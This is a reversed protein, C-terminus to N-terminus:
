KYNANCPYRRQLMYVLAFLRFIIVLITKVRNQDLVFSVFKEGKLLLERAPLNHKKNKKFLKCELFLSAKKEQLWPLKHESILLFFMNRLGPQRCLKPIYLITYLPSEFSFRLKFNKIQFLKIYLYTM